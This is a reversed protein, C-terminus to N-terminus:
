IYYLLMAVDILGAAAVSLSKVLQTLSFFSIDSALIKEEQKNNLSM